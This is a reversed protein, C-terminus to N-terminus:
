LCRRRVSELTVKAAVRNIARRVVSVTVGHKAALTRMSIDEDAYYEAAVVKQEAETLRPKRGRPPKARKKEIAEVTLKPGTEDSM